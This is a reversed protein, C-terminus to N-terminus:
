GFIDYIKGTIFTHGDMQFVKGDLLDLKIKDGKSTTMHLLISDRRKRLNHVTVGARLQDSDFYDREKYHTIIECKQQAELDGLFAEVEESLGKM